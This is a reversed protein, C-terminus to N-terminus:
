SMYYSNNRANLDVPAVSAEPTVYNVRRQMTVADDESTLNMAKRPRWSTGKNLSRNLSAAWGALIACALLAASLGWIQPATVDQVQSGYQAYLMNNTFMNSNEETTYDQMTDINAFGSEAYNGMVVSDIFDCTLDEELVAQAYAASSTKTSYMRYHKDCRASLMYMSTCIESIETDDDPYDGVRNEFSQRSAKCPICLSDAPRYYEADINASSEMYSLVDKEPLVDMLNGSVYPSLEDGELEYGLFSAASVGNGIYESCYEDSYVGLTITVGDASCHPGMYATQGNSKQVQTCDFYETLTDDLGTKCIQSFSHCIDYEPCAAYKNYGLERHATHFDETELDDLFSLDSREKLHRGSYGNKMWVQYVDYMCSECTDCYKEFRDNHYEVMLSLYDGLEIMYEGYNSQCGEGNAGGEKMVMELEDTEPNEETVVETEGTEANVETVVSSECMTSPCFRFVAFNKTIFVTTSDEAAALEDDFQKVAACRHYSLSYQTADFKFANDWEGVAHYYDDTGDATSAASSSEEQLSRVLKAKSMVKKRLERARKSDGSMEKVFTEPSPTQDKTLRLSGHSESMAKVFANRQQSTSASVTTAAMTAIAVTAFPHCKMTM